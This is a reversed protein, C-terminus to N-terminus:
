YAWTAIAPPIPPYIPPRSYVIVVILVLVVLVIGIIIMIAKTSKSSMDSGCSGCGGCKCTGGYIEGEIGYGAKLKAFESVLTKDNKAEFFNVWSESPSPNREIIKRVVGVENAIVMSKGTSKALTELKPFDEKTKIAEVAGSILLQLEPNKTKKILQIQNMIHKAWKSVDKDSIKSDDNITEQNVKCYVYFQNVVWAMFGDDLDGKLSKIGKMQSETLSNLSSTNVLIINAKDKIGGLAEVGESMNRNIEELQAVLVSSAGENISGDNYLTDAQKKAEEIANKLSTAPEGSYESLAKNYTTYNSIFARYANLTPTEMKENSDVETAM